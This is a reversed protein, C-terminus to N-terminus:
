VYGVLHDLIRLGIFLLLIAIMPTIDIMGFPPIVRRLPRMLPETLSWALSAAPNRSGPRGLQRHGPHLHRRHLGM